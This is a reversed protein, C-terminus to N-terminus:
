PGVPVVHFLGAFLPHYRTFFPGASISVEAIAELLDDLQFKAYEQQQGASSPAAASSPASAPAPVAASSPATTVKGKKKDKDKAADKTAAASTPAALANSEAHYLLVLDYILACCGTHCM